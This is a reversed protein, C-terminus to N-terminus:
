EAHNVAAFRERNISFDFLLHVFHAYAEDSLRLQSLIPEKDEGNWWTNLYIYYYETDYGVSFMRKYGDRGTYTCAAGHTIPLTNEACM